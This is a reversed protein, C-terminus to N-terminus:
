KKPPTLVSQNAAQRIKEFIVPAAVKRYDGPLSFSEPNIATRVDKLQMLIKTTRNSDIYTSESKIPMGLAEDVWILTESKVTEDSGAKSTVRYKTTPRGAVAEGGIKEYRSSSVSENLLLDPSVEDLELQPSSLGPESAESSLDAYLKERSLLVFRGAAVELYVISGVSGGEHEERRQEGDRMILVTTTRTENVSNPATVMETFTNTRTAQYREPEKTAFPPTFTVVDSNASENTLNPADRCGAFSLGGALVLFGIGFLGSSKTRSLLLECANSWCRSAWVVV